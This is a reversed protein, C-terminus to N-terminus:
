GIKEYKQRSVSGVENRSWRGKQANKPDVPPKGGNPSAITVEYGNDIFEYYPSNFEELWFGTKDETNGLQDHSPLVILVKKM